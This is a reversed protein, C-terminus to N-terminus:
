SGAGVGDEHDDPRADALRHFVPALAAYAARFLEAQGQYGLAADGDVQVTERVTVCCAIAEGADRFTGTALGALMVAGLASSDAGVVEVDAGCADAMIRTWAASRAPGGGLRIREVVSGGGVLEDLAIRIALAVGEVVARLTEAQGHSATMGVFAGRASPDHYPTSSGLLYPLFLLGRSGPPVDAVAEAFLHYREDASAALVALPGGIIREIFWQLSLGASFVSAMALFRQRGAAQFVYHGGGTPEPMPTLIQAATGLNVYIVGIEDAGAGLAACAVDSAGAAVPVGAPLGTEEAASRTVTGVVQCPSVVRPLLAPNGGAAELLELDWTQRHLDYFLTSAADTTDTEWLGTLRSRVFDKPLGLKRAAALRDPEHRAVWLLKPLTFAEILPNACRARVRDGVRENLENTEAVARQDAWTLCPRVPRLREDVLVLGHTQGSL